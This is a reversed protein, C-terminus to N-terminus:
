ALWLWSSRQRQLCIIPDCVCWFNCYYYYCLAVFTAASITVTAAPVTTNTGSAIDNATATIAAVDTTTM